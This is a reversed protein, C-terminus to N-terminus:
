LVDDRGPIPNSNDIQGLSDRPAVVVGGPERLDSGGPGFPDVRGLLQEDLVAIGGRGELRDSVGGPAYAAGKDAHPGTKIM